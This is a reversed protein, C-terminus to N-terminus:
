ASTDVAGGPSEGAPAKAVGVMAPRLLRDKIMYGTQVVQVVTGPPHDNSEVEFMAQHYNHDFKEGEPQIPVIGHKEFAGLLEKETMEVGTLFNDLEENERLHEPLSDLARRLNDAVSLLDRAFNTIAYKSTEEREREARRRVNEAEAMARLSKDKMEAVEAELAAIKEEPTAPEQGEDTEAAEATEEDNAAHPGAQPEEPTDEGTEQRKDEETM